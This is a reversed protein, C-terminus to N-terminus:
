GCALSSACDLADEGADPGCGPSPGAPPPGARFLYDFILIADGVEISGDDGADAADACRVAEPRGGFLFFLIALGDSLDVVADANPDGRQFFDARPVFRVHDLNLFNTNGAAADQLVTVVSPGAPLSVELEVERYAAWSGTGSFALRPEATADNVIIRRSANGAGAAYRFVIAYRGAAPLEIRFDVRQGDGNWGAIYGWGTFAGHLAELGIGHLAADEAEYQNWPAGTGPYGGQAGAFINLAMVAAATQPESFSSQPPGAWSVSFLTEAETRALGWIAEASAALVAGYAPNGTLAHLLALYRFAPGKFAHCDGGCATNSGDHLVNGFRTAATEERLMFQAFRHADQLYASEGTALHLEVAAGIMLGENYTFRWSVKTGDPNIHDTVQFDPEVMNARWYAYVQRAFDLYAGEGTAQHLRVALIVPGANSATAKQTHAKDWWIGGRNAGCCTTDWGARIDDLLEVAVDRHRAVGTLGHARLLALGMWSEDDYHGVLWGREEQAAFFTAILGAYRAGGTREVGDLLADFGQAFTWYGTAGAAGPYSSRLYGLGQSWFKLLFSQLAADARAHIEAPETAFSGRRVAVLFLLAAVTVRSPGMALPYQVRHAADANMTPVWPHLFGRAM